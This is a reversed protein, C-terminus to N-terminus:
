IRSGAEPGPFGSSTTTPTTPPVVPPTEGMAAYAFDRGALEGRKEAGIIAHDLLEQMRGNLDSRLGRIQILLAGFAGLLASIALLFATAQEVAM